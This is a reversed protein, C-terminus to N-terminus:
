AQSLVATSTDARHGMLADVIKKEDLEGHEAIASTLRGLDDSSVGSFLEETHKQLSEFANLLKTMERQITDSNTKCRHDIKRNIASILERLQSHDIHQCVFDVANSNYLLEYRKELNDPLSFNAYRTLINSRIAFDMVEPIFGADDAFCSLVVDNAFALMDTLPLVRKINVEIDFWSETVMSPFREKVVEEFKNISIKKVGKAM